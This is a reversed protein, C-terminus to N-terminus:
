EPENSDGMRGGTKPTMAADGDSAEYYLIGTSRHHTLLEDFYEDVGRSRHANHLRGQDGTGFANRM